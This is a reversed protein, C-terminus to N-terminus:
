RKRVANKNQMQANSFLTELEFLPSPQKEKRQACSWLKTRYIIADITIQAYFCTFISLRSLSFQAKIPLPACAFIQLTVFQAEKHM